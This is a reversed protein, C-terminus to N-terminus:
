RSDDGLANRLAAAATEPEIISIFIEAGIEISALTTLRPYFHAHWHFAVSSSGALASHFILNFASAGAASQLASDLRTSLALAAKLLGGDEALSFSHSKPFALVEYPFESWSPCVALLDGDSYVQTDLRGSKSRSATECLPCKDSDSLSSREDEFVPPEFDVAFLQSHSHELSAGAERGQNIGAQFYLTKPDDSISRLRSIWAKCLADVEVSSLEALRTKHVPTHAVVEHYRGPGAVAPYLNPVVRTIWGPQDPEGATRVSYVEPPTLEENGECLACIRNRATAGVHRDKATEQPRGARAPAFAVRRRRLPNWRVEHM